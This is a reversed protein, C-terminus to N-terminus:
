QKLAVGTDEMFWYLPGVLRSQAPLHSVDVGRSAFGSRARDTAIARTVDTTFVRQDALLRKLQARTATADVTVVGKFEAGPLREEIRALTSKLLLQSVLMQKDPAGQITIRGGKDDVARMTYTSVALGAQQILQEFESVSLPRRFVVSVPVSGEVQDVLRRNSEGFANVGGPTLRDYNVVVSLESGDTAAQYEWGDFREHLYPSGSAPQPTAQTLASAGGQELHFGFLLTALALVGIGFPKRLRRVLHTM